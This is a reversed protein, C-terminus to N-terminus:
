RSSSVEIYKTSHDKEKSALIAPLSSSSTRLMHFKRDHSFADRRAQVESYTTSDDLMEFLQM